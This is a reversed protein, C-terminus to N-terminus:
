GYRMGVSHISLGEFGFSQVVDSECSAGQGTLSTSISAIGFDLAKLYPNNIMKSEAPIKRVKFNQIKSFVSIYM